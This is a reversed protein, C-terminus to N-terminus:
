GALAPELIWKLWRHVDYRRIDAQLLRMRRSREEHPMEFATNIAAAVAECNYPNVLLTNDRLQDAAGAFESLILVGNGDVSCACYEKAVLNMGDRLPTILAIDCARYLAVLLSRDLTRYMYHIPVWGERSFRGNIRGALEDVLAKQKQYEPLRTRSPIVLQILSVRGQLRPYKELAHAFALYREAVGKTYDLRDVGLILQECNYQSRIQVSSQGSVATRAEDFFERFDISIPFSGATVCRNAHQIEVQRGKATITADPVLERVCRIFNARDRVTQFGLLDYELLAHLIRERWPLRRFLDSSPFPIHLFFGVRHKINMRRLHEGVLMLQYDHVWIFDDSQLVESTCEAFLANVADYTTWHESEFRSRGLFDHFLPWITQNAFGHYYGGVDAYTLFVPCLDYQQLASWEQLLNILPESADAGPWGVWLGRHKRMIPSLATILGGAAPLIRLGEEDQEVHIPLRNSVLVLRKGLLREPLASDDRVLRNIPRRIEQSGPSEGPVALSTAEVDETPRM